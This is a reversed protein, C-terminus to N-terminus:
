RSGQKARYKHPARSSVTRPQKKPAQKQHSRVHGVIPQGIPSGYVHQGSNSHPVFSMPKPAPNAAQDGAVSLAPVALVAALVAVAFTRM